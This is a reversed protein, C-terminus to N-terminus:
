LHSWFWVGLLIAIVGWPLGAILVRLLINLTPSDVSTDGVLLNFYSSAKDRVNRFLRM